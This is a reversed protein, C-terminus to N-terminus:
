MRKVIPVKYHHYKAIAKMMNLESSDRSIVGPLHVAMAFGKEMGARVTTAVCCEAYCGMVHVIETKSSAIIQDLSTGVFGDGWDKVVLHFRPYEAVPIALAPITPLTRSYEVYLISANNGMAENVKRTQYGIKNCLDNFKAQSLFRPQMDIIMLMDNGTIEDLKERRYFNRYKKPVLFSELYQQQKM